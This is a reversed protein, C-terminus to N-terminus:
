RARWIINIVIIAVLQTWLDWATHSTSDVDLKRICVRTGAPGTDKHKRHLSQKKEISNEIEIYEMDGFEVLLKISLYNKLEELFGRLNNLM